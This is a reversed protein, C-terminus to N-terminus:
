VLGEQFSSIYLMLYSLAGIAGTTILYQIYENHANAVRKGWHEMIFEGYINMFPAGFCDPGVGILINKLGSGAYMELAFTWIWGRKTGWKGDFISINYGVLLVIAAIAIAMFILSIVKTFKETTEKEALKATLRPILAYILLCVGGIVIYLHYNMLMKPIGLFSIMDDGKFFAGIKVIVSAALFFIGQAFLGRYRRIDKLCYYIMFLLGFGMGLIAGDSNAMYLNTYALVLSVGYFYKLRKSRACVFLMALVPITLALYGSYSNVNGYTAIYEYHESETLQTHLSLPDINLGNLFGLLYLVDATGFLAVWIYKIFSIHRSVYFYALMLFAILIAGIRWGNAGTFAAAGYDSLSASLLATCGFVLVAWDQLNFTKVYGLPDFRLPRVTCKEVIWIVLAAAMAFSVVFLFCRAKAALTNFYGDEYYLPILIFAAILYIKAILKKINEM